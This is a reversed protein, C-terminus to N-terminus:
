RGEGLSGMCRAVFSLDDAFKSLMAVQGNGEDRLDVSLNGAM